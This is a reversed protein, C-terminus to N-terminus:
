PGVGPEASTAPAPLEDKEEPKEAFVAWIEGPHTCWFIIAALIGGIFEASM